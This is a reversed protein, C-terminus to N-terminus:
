RAKQRFLIKRGQRDESLHKRREREQRDVCRGGQVASDPAFQEGM